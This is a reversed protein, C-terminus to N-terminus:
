STSGSDIGSSSASRPLGGEGRGTVHRLPSIRGHGVRNPDSPAFELATTM